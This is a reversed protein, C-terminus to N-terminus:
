SSPISLASKEGGLMRLIEAEREKKGLHQITTVTRGNIESKQVSFHHDAKSAVQPFHTICIVQRHKGLKKLQEGIVSATKGGVNADIEDFILTPTQNKECLTTKIAFLLRSLEGGSSHDKILVSQEGINARMWFLIADDGSQSRSAPQVSITIEAGQMNLSQLSETLFKALRESANKRKKTLQGALEGTTQEQQKIKARVEEIEDSLNELQDLKRQANQQFQQVEEITSGYKRKLADIAALREELYAFRKPDKDLKDTYNQLENYAETAAISAEHLLSAPPLLRADYHTLLDCSKHFRSLHPLFNSLTQTIPALKELIEQAHALRKHEETIEEEEGNKLKVSGIEELQSRLKEDEKDRQSDQSLLTNLKGKLDKEEEYAQQFQHLLSNLEAFQDVIARQSDASTLSHYAHQGVLELLTAGIKQLLPLPTLQGNVFARNKGERTIERRIILEEDPSYSIGADSLLKQTEPLKSIEFAAEVCAKEEGKRIMTSDARAGLALDIAEILATKGAGTEGTLATFQPLLDLACTDVLVLNKLSLHNIM